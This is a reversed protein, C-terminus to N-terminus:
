SASPPTCNTTSPCSCPSRPGNPRSPLGPRPTRAIACTPGEDFIFQAFFRRTYPLKHDPLTTLESQLRGLDAPTDVDYWLPLLSVQLGLTKSRDLTQATVQQTSWDIDYFLEPTPRKLGILYYGGDESPGLVMDVRNLQASAELLYDAPLTPGDSNLAIVQPHGATLLYSTTRDLCEGIDAGTVPFLLTEPPAIQRFDDTAEPPTVAIALSLSGIGTVLEITDRLMAKYLAAARTPTLPPCLRTKTKGVAPEKAMIVVVPVPM